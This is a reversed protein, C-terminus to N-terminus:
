SIAATFPAFSSTFADASPITVKLRVFECNTALQIANKENNSAAEKRM